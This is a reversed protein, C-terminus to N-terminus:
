EGQCAHDELAEVFLDTARWLEDNAAMWAGPSGKGRLRLDRLAVSAALVRLAAWERPAFAEALRLGDV